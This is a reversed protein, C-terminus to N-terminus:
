HEISLIVGLIIIAAIFLLNLFRLGAVGEYARLVDQETKQRAIKRDIILVGLIGDLIFIAMKTWFLWNNLFEKYEPIVLLIGTISQSVVATTVVANTLKFLNITETSFSKKVFVLFALFIGGFIIAAGFVHLIVLPIHLVELIEM